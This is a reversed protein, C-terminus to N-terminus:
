PKAPLPLRRRPRRLRAPFGQYLTTQDCVERRSSYRRAMQRVLTSKGVGSAGLVLIRPRSKGHSLGHHKADEKADALAQLM